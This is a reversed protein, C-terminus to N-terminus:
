VADFAMYADLPLHRHKGSVAVYVADFRKADTFNADRYIDAVPRRSAALDRKLLKVRASSCLGRVLM